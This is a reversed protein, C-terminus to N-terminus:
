KIIADGDVYISVKGFMQTQIIVSRSARDLALISYNLGGYKKPNLYAIEKRPPVSGVKYVRWRSVHPKLYLIRGVVSKDIPGGGSRPFKSSPPPASLKPVLWGLDTRLNRTHIGAPTGLPSNQDFITRQGSVIWAIHGAKNSPTSNYVVISGKPPNYSSRYPVKTFYKSLPSPFVTWYGKATGTGTPPFSFGFIDQGAIKILSVCEGKYNGRPDAVQRGRYKRIAADLRQSLQSQTM